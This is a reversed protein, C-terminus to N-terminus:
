GSSLSSAAANPVAIVVSNVVAMLAYLVALGM